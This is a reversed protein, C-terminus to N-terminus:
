IFVFDIYEKNPLELKDIVQRAIKPNLGVFVKNKGAHSLTELSKVELDFLSKKQLFENSDVFHSIKSKDKILTYLFSGYFGAGYIIIETSLNAEERAVIEGIGDWFSAIPLLEKLVSDVEKKKPLYEKILFASKKAKVVFVGRHSKEDVVINSFNARKLATEISLATFHNVHDIVVLDAVNNLVNPVVIYVEGSPNLLANMRELCGSVDNIHELSFFSTIIDFKANWSEPIDYTATKEFSTIKEWYKKYSNSVDFLFVSVGDHQEGIKKGMSSKGCGYDLLNAHSLDPYHSKFVELQHDTRFVNKGGKVEYLQDEDESDININYNDSYYDQVDDISVNMVHSCSNCFFVTNKINIIKTLSDLSFDERTQYIEQLNNKTLCVPCTKM